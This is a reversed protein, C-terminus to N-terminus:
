SLQHHSLVHLMTLLLLASEAQAVHIATHWKHVQSQKLRLHSDTAAYAVAEAHDSVVLPSPLMMRAGSEEQQLAAQCWVPVSSVVHSRLLLSQLWVPM